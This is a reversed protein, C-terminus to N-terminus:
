PIMSLIGHLSALQSKRVANIGKRRALNSLIRNQITQNSMIAEFDCFVVDNLKRPLVEPHNDVLNAIDQVVFDFQTRSAALGSQYGTLALSLRPDSILRLRGSAVIDELSVITTPAIHAVIHSRWIVRCHEESLSGSADGQLIMSADVLTELYLDERELSENLEAITAEIDAQLRVLIQREEIRDKRTQNWGDVQLGIVIGIVVIMLEIVVTFWSQDRIAEAIRRLIM